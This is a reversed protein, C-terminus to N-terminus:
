EEHSLERDMWNLYAPAGDVISFAVVEPVEYSHLSVIEASLRDFLTRRSKIVLVCESAEEIAGKWRYVSQAGPVINVCAALRKGVLGRAIAHAEEASSCTCLVLIKDTM